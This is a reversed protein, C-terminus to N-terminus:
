GDEQDPNANILCNDCADGVGDGDGDEQNPNPTVPCNDNADSINDNDADAGVQTRFANLDIDWSDIKKTMNIVLQVAGVNALDIPPSFNNFPLTEITDTTIPQVAASRIGNSWVFIFINGTRNTFDVDILFADQSLLNVCGTSQIGCLGDVDVGGSDVPNPNGDVGDWTIYVQGTVDSDVSVALQGNEPVRASARSGPNGSDLIQVFVDRENGLINNGSSGTDIVSAGATGVGFGADVNDIAIVDAGIVAWNDIVTQALAFPAMLLAFLGFFLLRLIMQPRKVLAHM